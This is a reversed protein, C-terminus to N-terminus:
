NGDSLNEPLKFKETDKLPINTRVVPLPVVIDPLKHHHKKHKKHHHKKVLVVTVLFLLFTYKM